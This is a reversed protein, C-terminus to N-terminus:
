AAMETRVFVSPTFVSPSVGLVPDVAEQAVADRFREANIRAVAEALVRGARRYHEAAQTERESM